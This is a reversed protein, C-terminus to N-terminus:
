LVAPRRLTRERAYQEIDSFEEACYRYIAQRDDPSLWPSQDIFARIYRPVHEYDHRVILGYLEKTAREMSHYNAELEAERPTREETNPREIARRRKEAVITDHTVAMQETLSRRVYDAIPRALGTMVKKHWTRNLEDIRAPTIGINKLISATREIIALRELLRANSDSWGGTAAMQWAVSEGLQEALSQLARRLKASQEIEEKLEGEFGPGKIKKFHPLFAFLLFLAVGGLMAAAGAAQGSVGLWAALLAFLIVGAVCVWRSFEDM